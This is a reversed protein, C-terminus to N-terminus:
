YLDLYKHSVVSAKDAINMATHQTWVVDFSADDFSMDLANGQRYTVLEGLGIRDALMQAM